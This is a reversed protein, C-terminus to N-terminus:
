VIIKTLVPVVDIKYMIMERLGLILGPMFCTVKDIFSCKTFVDSFCAFPNKKKLIEHANLVTNAVLM